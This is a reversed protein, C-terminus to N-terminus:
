EHIMHISVAVYATELVHTASRSCLRRVRQSIVAALQRPQAPNFALDSSKLLHNAIFPLAKIDDILRARRDRYDASYLRVNQPIMQRRTSM